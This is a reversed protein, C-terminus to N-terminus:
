HCAGAGAAVVPIGVGPVRSVPLRLAHEVERVYDDWDLMGAVTAVYRGGRLFVLAPRRAVGYRRALADECDSEALAIRFPVSCARQLEPLVVAVDLCEPFRVPDGAIFLVCDGDRALFPESPTDRVWAAGHQRVLRQMLPPTGAVSHPAPVQLMSTETTM